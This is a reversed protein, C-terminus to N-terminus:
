VTDKVLKQIYWISQKQKQIHQFFNQYILLHVPWNLPLKNTCLWYGDEEGLREQKKKKETPPPCPSAHLALCAHCFLPLFM